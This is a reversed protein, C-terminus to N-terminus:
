SKELLAINEIHKTQPFLDFPQLSKIKYGKSILFAVDRAQTAIDCAVYVIGKPSFDALQKLFIEDCGKRPPDIVIVTESPPYMVAEFIKESSGQIFHGNTVHNLELNQKALRIAQPNLEIGIFKEVGKHCAIGFLGVGCYADILYRAGFDQVAQSVFNVFSPLIFPNNQFFEGAVFQFSLEGVKQTVIKKPDQIVGEETDRFLLTGERRITSKREQLEERAKPLAKNIADSAIPCQPIDILSRSDMKLFGLPMFEQNREPRYHPTLKSRYGFTKPSGITESVTVSTRTLREFVEQVQIKKWYLQAEDSLHQYQCGGCAGYLPCKATVRDESVELIEVLDAESFNKHNKFIKVRVKEGPLAFRTMVVWGEVRGLGHGQNTLTDIMMEIEQHYHFPEAVFNKPASKM